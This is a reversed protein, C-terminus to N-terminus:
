ATEQDFINYTDFIEQIRAWFEERRSERLNTYGEIYHQALELDVRAITLEKDPNKNTARVQGDMVASIKKIAEQLLAPNSRLLRVISPEVIKMTPQNEVASQRTEAEDVVTPETAKDMQSRSPQDSDLSGLDLTGESVPGKNPKKNSDAGQKHSFGPEYRIM